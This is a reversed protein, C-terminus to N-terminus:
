LLFGLDFLIYLPSMVFRLIEFKNVKRKLNYRHWESKYHLKQESDDEFEKNCANCTLGPMKRRKKLKELEKLSLSFSLLLPPNKYVRFPSHPFIILTPPASSCSKLHSAAQTPTSTWCTSLTIRYIHYRTSDPKLNGM